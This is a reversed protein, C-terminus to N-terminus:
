DGDEFDAYKVAESSTHYIHMCFSGGSRAVRPTEKQALRSVNVDKKASIITTYENM